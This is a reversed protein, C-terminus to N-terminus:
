TGERWSHAPTHAHPIDTPVLTCGIAAVYLSTKNAALWTSCIPELLCPIGCYLHVSHSVFAVPCALKSCWRHQAFVVGSSHRCLSFFSQLGLNLGAAEVSVLRTCTLAFASAGGSSGGVGSGTPWLRPRPFSVQITHKVAPCEAM